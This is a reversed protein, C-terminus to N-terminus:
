DRRPRLEAPPRFRWAALEKAKLEVLAPVIPRLNKAYASLLCKDALLNILRPCGSSFEIFAPEAGIAFIREYCGGAVEIRHRLYPLVESPGLAELHHEVAIRQRLQRLRPDSLKRRLEPQGMLVIQLLKEPGAELNSLLRVQELATLSLNQAEDIVLVCTLGARQRDMLFAHLAILYDAKSQLPQHLALQPGGIGFEACALKLLDLPGLEATNTVVAVEPVDLLDAPLRDVAARLLTTKGTGVEGTLMLFGKRRSIGYCLASLGEQHTDSLWLFRPDSSLSFAPEHLGFFSEYM